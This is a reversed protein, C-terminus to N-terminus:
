VARREDGTASLMAVCETHGQRSAMDCATLGDADRMQPDAGASLLLWVVNTHGM